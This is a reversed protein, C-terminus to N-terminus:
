LSSKKIFKKIIKDIENLLEDKKLVDTYIWHVSDLRKFWSIQRKALQRTHIILREIMQEKSWKGNLYSIVEKYGIGEFAIANEDYKLLLSEVEEILGGSIMEYVREEIKNHLIKRDKVNLGIILSQINPNKKRFGRNQESMPKGTLDYIELARIVRKVNNKHIKKSSVPDKEQLIEYLADIGKEKVLNEYKKRIEENPATNGLNLDYILSNFYLGTGGVVFTIKGNKNEKEIIKLADERYQDVNYEEDPTVINLLYHKVGEQEKLTVKATGIDMEKYVQISDCSIIPFNYKKALKIAISSKGIATPGVIGIFKNM